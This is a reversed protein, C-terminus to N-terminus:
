DTARSVSLPRDLSINMETFRPLIVDRGHRTALYIASACGSIIRAQGATSADTASSVIAEFILQFTDDAEKGVGATVGLNIAMWAKGPREGHLGGEKDIKTHSRQDLEAGALTAAIPFQNGGPLTLGTFTLYLSGARSLMRPPIKKVVKGEVLSGAPLVVHSDSLVPELLRAQVVDGPNSKSASVDSLLLIKCRTGAPLVQPGEAPRARFETRASDPKWDNVPFAELIMTTPLSQKKTREEGKPPGVQVASGETGGGQVPRTKKAQAVVERQRSVSILSVRLPSEGGAGTVSAAKFVPFKEHRPTFLKIVEPWHDNPIRRRKGMSDVTLRVASGAMFLAHDDSYVDRTLKGEVIDGPKLKSFKVPGSLQVKVYLGSSAAVSGAPKAPEDSARCFCATFLLACSVASALKQTVGFRRM